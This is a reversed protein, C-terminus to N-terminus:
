HFNDKICHLHHKEKQEAQHEGQPTAIGKRLTVTVQKKSTNAPGAHPDGKHNAITCVQMYISTYTKCEHDRKM